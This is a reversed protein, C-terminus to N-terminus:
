QATMGLLPSRDVGRVARVNYRCKLKQTVTNAVKEDDVRLFFTSGTGTMRWDGYKSVDNVIEALGPYKRLVLEQCDNRTSEFSYATHLIKPTNRPLSADSFVGATSIEIEPMLLVYWCDGLEIPQLLEGVGEGWATQGGLFLPVDAGLQLGLSALQGDSLGCEWIQNLAYLVTAADSSGGGLGAGIPTQKGLGIEVGKSCGTESQLLRAAKLCLDDSEAVGPVECSRRVEPGVTSRFTIRDGWDLLQFLTQLEHYGSSLRGNIHLFLNLKAPAPWIQEPNQQM